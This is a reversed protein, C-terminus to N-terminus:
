TPIYAMRSPATNQNPAYPCRSPRKPSYVVVERSINNRRYPVVKPNRGRIVGCASSRANLCRLAGPMTPSRALRTWASLSLPTFLRIGPPRKGNMFRVLALMTNGPFFLIQKSPSSDVAVERHRLTHKGRHPPPAYSVNRGPM